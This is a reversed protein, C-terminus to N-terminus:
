SSLVAYQGGMSLVSIIKNSLSQIDSGAIIKLAFHDKLASNHESIEEFFAKTSEVASYDTNLSVYFVTCHSKQAVCEEGFHTLEGRLEERHGLSLQDFRIGGIYPVDGSFILAVKNTYLALSGRRDEPRTLVLKYTLNSVIQKFDMFRGPISTKTWIIHEFSLPYSETIDWSTHNVFHLDPNYFGEPFNYKRFHEEEDAVAACYISKVPLGEESEEIRVYHDTDWDVHSDGFAPDITGPFSLQRITGLEGQLGPAGYVSLKNLSFKDLHKFSYLIATKLKSFAPNFCQQTAIRPQINEGLYSLSIESQFLAASGWEKEDGWADDEGSLLAPASSAGRDLVIAIDQPVTRAKSIIPIPFSLRQGVAEFFSAFIPAYQIETELIVQDNKITVAVPYKTDFRMWYDTVSKVTQNQDPLYRVGYLATEDLYGQLDSRLYSIRSVDISITAFALLIPIVVAGIFLLISGRENRNAM